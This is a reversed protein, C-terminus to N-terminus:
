SYVKEIRNYIKLETNYLVPKACLNHDHVSRLFYLSQGSELPAAECSQIMM